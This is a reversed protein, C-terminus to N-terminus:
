QKTYKVTVINMSLWLLARQQYSSIDTIKQLNAKKANKKMFGSFCNICLKRGKKVFTSTRLVTEVCSIRWLTTATATADHELEMQTSMKELLGTETHIKLDNFLLSWM